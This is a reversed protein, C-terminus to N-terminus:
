RRRKTNKKRKSTMHESMSVAVDPAPTPDLFHDNTKEGIAYETM